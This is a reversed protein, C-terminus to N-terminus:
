ARNPTKNIAGAKIRAVYMPVRICGHSDKGLLDGDAMAIALEEADSKPLGVALFVRSMYDKLQKYPIRQANKDIPFESSVSKTISM